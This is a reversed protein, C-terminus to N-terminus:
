TEILSIRFSPCVFAGGGHMTKSKSFADFTKLSGQVIVQVQGTGNKPIALYVSGESGIANRINITGEGAPAVRPHCRRLNRGGTAASRWMRAMSM